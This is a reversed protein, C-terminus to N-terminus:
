LVEYRTEHAPVPLEAEAEAVIVTAVGRSETEQEGEGVDAVAPSDIVQVAVGDPPVPEYVYEQLPVSLRDPM